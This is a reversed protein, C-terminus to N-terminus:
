EAPPFVVAAGGPLTVSDIMARLASELATEDDASLQRITGPDFNAAQTQGIRTEFEWCIGEYALRYVAGEAFHGAGADGVGGFVATAYSGGDHTTVALGTYGDPQASLCADATALDARRAIRLGASELTTGDYAPGSYYFCGDFGANCPPIVGQEAVEAASTALTFEPAPTVTIDGDTYGAALMLGPAAAPPTVPAPAAEAAAADPPAAAPVPLAEAEEGAALTRLLGSYASFLAQEDLAATNNWTAVVCHTNGAADVVRTSLNLVGPESGGKFAIDAWDERRALGPNIDFAWMDATQELLACLEFSDFIWEVDPTLVPSLAGVAPLPQAALEALIERRATEDGARWRELMGENGTAKLRFLEGTTPFPRNRESFAEVAERGVLAILGDTATNDSMSVMLNALTAVTVATGPRWDQLIGTPLSRWAADVQVTDDLNLLTGSATAEGLAALVALKFASGVALPLEPQHGAALEGNTIVAVSTDGPLAAIRAVFGAVGGGIPVANGFFLGIIRGDADLTVQTPLEARELRTTLTGGSGTVSVLAGYQTTFSALVLAIQQAPVQALFVEGFWAPDVTGSFLRGVADNTTIPQAAAPQAFGILLAACAAAVFRRFRHPRAGAGSAVTRTFLSLM